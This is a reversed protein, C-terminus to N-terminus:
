ALGTSEAPKLVVTNGAALAPAVKLATCYLPINWPVIAACVGLPERHVLLISDPFDTTEGHIHLPLAGFYDYVEATAPIDFMQSDTIPKGNDVTEMMAFEALRRRLRSAMEQLILQRQRPHTRSWTKFAAHAARVARDVDSANGAQIHSLTEGTAPNIVPITKGSEGGVWAGGIFHGYTELFLSKQAVSADM